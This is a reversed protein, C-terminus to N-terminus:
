LSTCLGNKWATCTSGTVGASGDSSMFSTATITGIVQLKQTPNLTAIGVNGEGKITMKVTSSTAGSNTTSFRMDTEGESGSFNAAAVGQICAGNWLDNSTNYAGGMCFLGLRSGSTIATGNNAAAVVVGGGSSSYPVTNRTFRASPSATNVLEFPLTPTAMTTGIGVNGNNLIRFNTKLNSDRISFGATTDATEATYRMLGNQVIFHEGSINVDGDISYLTIDDNTIIKNTTFPFQKRNDKSSDWRLLGLDVGNNGDGGNGSNVYEARVPSILIDMIKSSNWRSGDFDISMKGVSGQYISFEDWEELDEVPSEYVILGQALTINRWLVLANDSSDFVISPSALVATGDDDQTSDPYVSKSIPGYETWSTGDFNVLYVNTNGFTDKKCYVMSPYNNSDLALGYKSTGNFLGSGSAITVAPLDNTYQVPVTQTTGDYHKFTGNTIDWKLYSPDTSSDPSADNRWIWGFHAVNNSDVVPVNVYVSQGLTVGDVFLGATGTGSVAAWSTTGSTYKYLYHNGNGSVGNRYLVYLNGDNDNFFIVYTVANENTGLFTTESGLNSVDEPSTSVRYNLADAHMDYTVHIYGADDVGLAITNHNDITFASINPRGGTGDYKYCTFQGDTPRKCLQMKRDRDIYGLYQNGNYTLINTAHSTNQMEDSYADDDIMQYYLGGGASSGGSVIGTLSSGDGVFSTAQMTGSVVANGRVTLKQPATTTGIGVNDTTLTPFIETGGDTWGGSAGGGSGPINGIQVKKTSGDASDYIVFEDTSAPPNKETYSHITAAHVPVCFLLFIM